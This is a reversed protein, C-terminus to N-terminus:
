VSATNSINKEDLVEVIIQKIGNITHNWTMNERVYKSAAIGRRKMDEKNRYSETMADALSGVDPLRWFGTTDPLCADVPAYNESMEIWMGYQTSFYERPSSCRAILGAMGTAMAEVPMLGFGESLHPSVYIHNNFYLSCASESRNCIFEIQQHRGYEMQMQTFMPSSRPSAITLKADKGELSMIFAEPVMWSGKRYQIVGAHLFNLCGDWDRDVYRFEDPKIGFNVVYIPVDIPAEMFATTAFHSPCIIADARSLNKIVNKKGESRISHAESLCLAIRAKSMVRNWTWFQPDGWWLEVYEEPNEPEVVDCVEDGDAKFAEVLATWVTTWSCPEYGHLRLWIKM